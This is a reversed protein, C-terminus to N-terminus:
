RPPDAAGRLAPPWTDPLDEYRARLAELANLRVDRNFKHAAGVAGFITGSYWLLEFAGVVVAVGVQGLRIADAVAFGFLANWVLAALGILPQGVYLHGAGPLVSLLGAIWPSRSPLDEEARAAASLSTRGPFDPVSDFGAAARLSDGRALRTWALVYTARNRVEEPASATWTSAWGTLAAEAELYRAGAYRAYALQLEAESRLSFAPRWIMERFQAAAADVQGGRLYARGISIRAADAEPGEPALHLFRKYEGIARYHDGEAVLQQAFGLARWAEASPTPSAGLSLTLIM